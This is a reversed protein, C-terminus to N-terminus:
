GADLLSCRRGALRTARAFEADHEPRNVGALHFVSTPRALGGGSRRRPSDVDIGLSRTAPAGCLAVCWTGASSGKPGTVLVKVARGEAMSGRLERRGRDRAERWARQVFDLTLLLEAM